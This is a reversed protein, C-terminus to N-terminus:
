APIRVNLWNMRQVLAELHAELAKKHTSAFGHDAMDDGDSRAAINHEIAALDRNVENLQDRVILYEVRLRREDWTDYIEPKEHKYM